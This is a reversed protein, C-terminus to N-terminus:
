PGGSRRVRQVIIRQYDAAGLVLWMARSPHALVRPIFVGSRAGAMSVEFPAGNANDRDLEAGWPDATPGHFAGFSTGTATNFALDYGDYSQHPAFVTRSPARDSGDMALRHAAFSRVGGRVAHYSAIVEAAYPDYEADTVKAFELPGSLSRHAGLVEGASSLRALRVHADAGVVQMFTVFFARARAHFVVAPQEVFVGPESLRITSGRPNGEGDLLRAELGDRPWVVLFSDTDPAYAISPASEQASGPESVDVSPGGFDPAAGQTSPAIVRRARVIALRGSQGHWAAVWGRRGLAVRPLQSWDGDRHPEDTIRFGEGLQAGGEDLWAGGIPANGYVVLFVRRAPDFAGDIGRYNVAPHARLTVSPGDREITGLRGSPPASDLAADDDVADPLSASDHPRGDIAAVADTSRDPLSAPEVCACAAVPAVLWCRRSSRRM